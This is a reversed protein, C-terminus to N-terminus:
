HAMSDSQLTANITLTDDLYAGSPSAPHGVITESLSTVVERNLDYGITGTAVSAKMGNGLSRHEGIKLRNNDNSLVTYDTGSSGPGGDAVNWHNNADIRTPDVFGDGLLRILSVEEVTLKSRMDCATRTPYILCEAAPSEHGPSDAHESVAVALAKDPLVHLVDVVISGKADDDQHYDAVGSGAADFGNSHATVMRSDAFTFAFVLHRLPPPSAQAILLAALIM